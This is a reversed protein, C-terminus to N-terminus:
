AYLYVNLLDGGKVSLRQIHAFSIIRDGVRIFNKM